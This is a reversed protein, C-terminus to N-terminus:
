GTGFARALRPVRRLLLFELALALLVSAGLLPFLVGLGLTIVTVGVMLPRGPERRPAGLGKPRRARWMVLSTAVSVLLALTGLLALVQSVWGWERGEHLAVSFDIARPIAPLTSAPINVLPQATYQDIFVTRGTGSARVPDPDVDAGRLATYSGTEDAPMFIAYGSGLAKQATAVIADIPAGESPDWRLAGVGHHGAHKAAGGQEGSLPVPLTSSAWQPKSGSPLDGVTTSSVGDLLAAPYVSKTVDMARQLVQPSWFGTWVLGSILFFATVFSFLVGTIAHVDRWRIRRNRTNWRPVLVGDGRGGARRRSRGRPWWLYVGSVLLVLTWCAVLEIYWDGWLAPDVSGPLWGLWAGSWMSGHIQLAIYSPDHNHNRAGLYTGTYPDLYASWPTGDAATVEFQTSRDAAPQPMVADVSGDPFQATVTDLQRGYDVVSAGPTVDRLSGYLLGDLQPKFLYVIGTLCLMVIVPIAFLGAYFHWRWVARYLSTARRGTLPEPEAVGPEDTDTALDTSRSM